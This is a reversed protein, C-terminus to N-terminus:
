RLALTGTERARRDVLRLLVVALFGYLAILATSGILAPLPDANTTTADLAEMSWGLPTLKGIWALPPWLSTAPVIVGCVIWVPYELVNTLEIAQRTVVYFAALTMGIVTLGALSTLLAFATGVPNAFSLRDGFLIVAMAVSIIISYAGLTATAASFGAVPLSLSKPAGVILELTGTFRQMFLAEAAGYLCISWAGLLGAGIALRITVPQSANMMYAIGGYALPTLTAMSVFFPNRSLLQLQLRWSATFLSM